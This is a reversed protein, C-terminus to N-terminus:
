GAPYVECFISVTRGTEGPPRTITALPASRAAILGRSLSSSLFRLNASSLENVAHIRPESGPKIMARRQRTGFVTHYFNQTWSSPM